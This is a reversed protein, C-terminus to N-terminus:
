KHLNFLELGNQYTVIPLEKQLEGRIRDIFGTTIEESGKSAKRVDWSFVNEYYNKNRLTNLKTRLVNDDDSYELAMERTGDILTMITDASRVSDALKDTM